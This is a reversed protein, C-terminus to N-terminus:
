KTLGSIIFRFEIEPSPKVMFVMVKHTLNIGIRAREFKVGSLVRFIDLNFPLVQTIPQGEVKDGVKIVVTDSNSKERDGLECHIGEQDAYIYVKNSDTTFSSAKLLERLKEFEIDFFTHLEM